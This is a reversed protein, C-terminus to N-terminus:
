GVIQGNWCNQNTLRFIEMGIPSVQRCCSQINLTSHAWRILGVVSYEIGILRVQRCSCQIDLASHAWNILRIISYEIGILRGQCFPSIPRSSKTVSPPIVHCIASYPQPHCFSTASPPFLQTDVDSKFIPLCQFVV